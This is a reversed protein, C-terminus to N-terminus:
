SKSMGAKFLDWASDQRLILNLILAWAVASILILIFILILCFSLILFITLILTLTLCVLM